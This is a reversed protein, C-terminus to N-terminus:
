RLATRLRELDALWARLDIRWRGLQRALDAEARPIMADLEALHASVIAAERDIASALKARGADTLDTDTWNPDDTLVLELRLPDGAGVAVPDSRKGRVEAWLTCPVAAELRFSGDDGVPVLDGCGVVVPRRNTAGVVSGEVARPNLTEVSTCAVTAGASAPPWSLALTREDPRVMGGTSEPAALLTLWGDEVFGVDYVPDWPAEGRGDLDLLATPGLERLVDRGTGWVRPVTGLAAMPCRVLGVGHHAAIAELARGAAGLPPPPDGIRPGAPVSTAPEPAQSEGVPGATCALLAVLVLM